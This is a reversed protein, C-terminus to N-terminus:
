IIKLAFIVSFTTYHSKLYQYYTLIQSGPQYKLEVSYKNEYKYGISLAVNVRSKIELNIGELDVKSDIPFDYFLWGTAFLKSKENLFFYYRLGASTEISKYDAQSTENNKTTTSKYYQYAPEFVIAWKNKNFGLVFEAEVGIRFSLANGFSTKTTPAQYTNQITLNSSNIGPRINLNFLSKGHTNEFSVFASNQSTNYSVFLGSLNKQEYSIKEIDKLGFAPCKLNNWLQTKFTNNEGISSESVYYRKYILPEILLSDRSYFFRKLTNTRYLYLSAKGEVIVKLFLLEKKFEPLRNYNMLDLADASTDVDADFRKYKCINLVGFESVEAISAKKIESNDSEKYLFNTPNNLWDLNKILCSIKKGDNAIFYGPEFKIQACCICHLACGWTVLLLTKM